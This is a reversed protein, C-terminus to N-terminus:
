KHNNPKRWLWNVGLRLGFEGEAELWLKLCIFRLARQPLGLRVKGQPSDSKLLSRKVLAALVDTAGRDSMGLMAKFEGHPMDEASLFLYHLGRLAEQSVGQKRVTAECVLCAEVRTKIAEFDLLNAM